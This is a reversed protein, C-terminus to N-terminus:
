EEVAGYLLIGTGTYAVVVFVLLGVWRALPAPQVLSSFAREGAILIPAFAPLALVPLLTAASSSSSAVVGYLVGATALAACALLTMPATLLADHWRVHLLLVTGSLLVVATIVLEFFLATAKGLFLGAPDLGLTRLSNQTGRGSEIATSRNIILLAALTLVVYFLGPALQRDRSSNPGIALGCLVLAMVSFPVVQWLVIRSRLEIRLDKGAVLLAVRIM